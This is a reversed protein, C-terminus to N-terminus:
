KLRNFRVVGRYYHYMMRDMAWPLLTGAGLVIGALRRPWVERGPRAIADAMIRAVEQATQTKTFRDSPPLQYKGMSQAVSRFETTTPTPHVTTVAIQAEKLEVRLAEAIALQAAKAGSYVGIFPTGRRAAASSVVMIQGRYGDRLAQRRLHPVAFRICETTGVVDVELMRRVEAADTEEVLKYSGYGANCVLTDLRGFHSITSEIISQCDESRAVDACVTLHRGGLERNLEQLRDMRRAALVLSAGRSGLYRALEQGIGASAGTIVVVMGELKRAM